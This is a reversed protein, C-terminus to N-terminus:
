HTTWTYAIPYIGPSCWAFCSLRWFFLNHVNVYIFLQNSEICLFVITRKGSLALHSLVNHTLKSCRTIISDIIYMLLCRVKRTVFEFGAYLYWIYFLKNPALSLTLFPFKSTGTYMKCVFCTYVALSISFNLNIIYILLHQCSIRSYFTWTHYVPWNWARTLRM